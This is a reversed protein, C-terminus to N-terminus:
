LFDKISRVAWDRTIGVMKQHSPDEPTDPHARSRRHVHERKVERNEVHDGFLTVGTFRESPTQQYWNKAFRVCSPVNRDWEEGYFLSACPDVTVLLDVLVKAGGARDFPSRSSDELRGKQGHVGYRYWWRDIERCAYVANFGGASYGYLVIQGRPDFYGGPTQEDDRNRVGKVFELIKSVTGAGYDPPFCLDRDLSAHLAYPQHSSVASILQETDYSPNRTVFPRGQLQPQHEDYGTVIVLRHHVPNGELGSRLRVWDPDQLSM